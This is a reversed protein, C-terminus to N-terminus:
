EEIDEKPKCDECYVGRDTSTAHDLKIMEGCNDCSTGIEMACDDCYFDGEIVIISDDKHYDECHECRTYRRELCSNCVDGEGDIYTM